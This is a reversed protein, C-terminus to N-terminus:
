ELVTFLPDTFHDNTISCNRLQCSNSSIYMFLCRCALSPEELKHFLDFGKEM